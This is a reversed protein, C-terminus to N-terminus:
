KRNGIQLQFGFKVVSARLVRLFLHIANETNEAGGHHIM